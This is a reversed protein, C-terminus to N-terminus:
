KLLSRRDSLRDLTLSLNMNNRAEGTTDFPAFPAGLWAPGDGYTGALRV